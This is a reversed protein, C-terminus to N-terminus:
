RKVRKGMKAAAELLSPVFNRMRQGSMRSVPGSVALAAVFRDKRDFIPVAIAATGAEREEVSLAYGEEKVKQLQSKYLPISVTEPWMNSAFMENQFDTDLYAMIVKSSAGVSLPMRAGIPAIRRITQKSEVAQVRIREYGDRIYLSITEEVDDRLREMEPLFLVAPDNSQDLNASLEWIRIGLSYKETYPDRQIFGKAELTLLLRFVTSKNLRTLRVIEMMALNPKETFCLLIDLSREVARVTLKKEDM